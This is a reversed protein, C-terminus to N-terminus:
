QAYLAHLRNNARCPELQYLHPRGLLLTTRRLAGPDLAPTSLVGQSVRIAIAPGCEPERM